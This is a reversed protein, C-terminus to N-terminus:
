DLRTLTYALHSEILGRSHSVVEIPDLMMPAVRGGLADELQAALKTQKLLDLLIFAIGNWAPWVQGNFHCNM